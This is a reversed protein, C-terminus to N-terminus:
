SPHCTHCLGYLELQHRQVVFGFKALIRTSLEQVDCDDFSEIKGCKDCVVHHHHNDSSVAEYRAYGQAFDIRTALGLSELLNVFRYATVLNVRQSCNLAAIRTNAEVHLEIVSQPTLAQTLAAVLAKRPETIRCGTEKLRTLVFDQSLGSCNM